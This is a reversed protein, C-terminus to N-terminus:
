CFYVIVAVEDSKRDALEKLIEAHRARTIDYQRVFIIAILTLVITVSIFSWGIRSLIDWTIMSPDRLAGIGSYDVMVGVIFSGLGTAVKQMLSIAGYYLGEQRVHHVREHEDTIDALV